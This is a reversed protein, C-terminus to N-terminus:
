STVFSVSQRTTVQDEVSQALTKFTTSGSDSLDSTYVAAEGSVITFSSEYVTSEAPAFM